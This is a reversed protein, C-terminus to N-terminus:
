SPPVRTSPTRMPAALFYRREGRTGGPEAHSAVVGIDALEGGLLRQGRVGSCTNAASSGIILSSRMARM